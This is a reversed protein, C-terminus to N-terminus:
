QQGPKRAIMLWVGGKHGPSTFALFDPRQEIVEFGAAQLEQQVYNPGIEHDKVQEARTASRVNDHLPESMVLRGGPKLAMFIAKLIPEPTPMEHYANYILVADFTSEPLHPNDVAGFVVDVNTVGEQQLRARLKDLYKESVDVATVRGTPGVARAIRLSYFGEGAGVDAIRKGPETQLAALIDSVKESKERSDDAAQAWAFTAISLLLAILSGAVLKRAHDM